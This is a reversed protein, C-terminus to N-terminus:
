KNILIVRESNVNFHSKNQIEEIVFQKYKETDDVVFLYANCNFRDICETIWEDCTLIKDSKNWVEKDAYPPCTFLCDYNGQSTFIDKCSVSANSYNYYDIIKNTEEIHTKNIDQGIYQKDCNMTGILRGSFGSFPDFVCDYKFLYTQILREALTPNFVSVKPAIKTVSFGYVIDKPRCKSTYQLRNLAVKKVLNKDQWAEEPSKHKAVHANYISKHFHRIVGMASKDSFDENPYPFEAKTDFLDLYDSTYKDNIYTLMANYSQSTLICGKQTLIYQHKAEYLGDEERNYPNIMKGNEFFYDGKIEIYKGDVIFDPVWYHEKGEYTYSFTRPCRIIDKGNDKCYIYFALEPKSDFYLDDYLYRKRAKKHFELTAAYNSVGYRELCTNRQKNVIHNKYNEKTGYKNNKTTITKSIIASDKMPNNVGYHALYANEKKGQIINSQSPNKVGYNLLSTNSKKEKVWDLQSPNTVGYKTLYTNEKQQKVTTSKSPHSVGWKEINKLETLKKDEEKTHFSINNRILIEKIRNSKVHFHSVTDSLRHTKYYQIVENENLIVKKGM